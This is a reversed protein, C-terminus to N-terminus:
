ERAIGVDVAKDCGCRVRVCDCAFKAESTGVDGDLLCLRELIGVASSRAYVTWRMTRCPDLGDRFYM